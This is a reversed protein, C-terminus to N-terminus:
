HVPGNNIAGLAGDGGHYTSWEKDPGAIFYAEIQCGLRNAEQDLFGHLQELQTPDGEHPPEAPADSHICIEKDLDWDWCLILRQGLLIELSKCLDDAADRGINPLTIKLRFKM